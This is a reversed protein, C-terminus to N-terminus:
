ASHAHAGKQKNKQCDDAKVVDNIESFVQFLRSLRIQLENEVATKPRVTRVSFALRCVLRYANDM